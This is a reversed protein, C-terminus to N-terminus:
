RGPSTGNTPTLHWPSPVLSGTPEPPQVRLTPWCGSSLFKVIGPAVVALRVKALGGKDVIGVGGQGDVLVAQVEDLSSPASEHSCHCALAKHVLVNAPARNRPEM